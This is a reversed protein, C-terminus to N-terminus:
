LSSNWVSRKLYKEGRPKIVHKGILKKENKVLSLTHKSIAKKAGVEGGGVMM